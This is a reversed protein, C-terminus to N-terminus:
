GKVGLKFQTRFDKLENRLRSIIRPEKSRYSIEIEYPTVKVGYEKEYWVLEKLIIHEFQIGKVERVKGLEEIQNKIKKPDQKLEMRGKLNTGYLKLIDKKKVNRVDLIFEEASYTAPLYKDLLGKLNLYNLHDGYLVIKIHNPNPLIKLIKELESLPMPPIEMILDLGM